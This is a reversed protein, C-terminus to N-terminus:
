DEHNTRRNRYSKIKELYKQRESKRSCCRVMLGVLITSIIAALTVGVFSGPHSKILRFLYKFGKTAVNSTDSKGTDIVDDAKHTVQHTQSRYHPDSGKKFDYSCNSFICCRYETQSNGGKASVKVSNQGRILNVASSGYCVGSDCLQLNVRAKSCGSLAVTCVATIGALSGWSGELSKLSVHYSCVEKNAVPTIHAKNKGIYGFIRYTKTNDPEDWCTKAAINNRESLKIRRYSDVSRKFRKVGSNHDGTFLCVPGIFGDHVDSNYDIDDCTFDLDYDFFPCHYPGNDGSDEHGKVLDGVMGNKCNTRCLDVASYFVDAEESEDKILTSDAETNTDIPGVCLKANELTVCTSSMVLHCETDDENTFCIPVGSLVNTVKYLQYSPTVNFVLIACRLELNGVVPQMSWLIEHMNDRQACSDPPVIKNKSHGCVGVHSDSGQGDYRADISFKVDPVYTISSYRLDYDCWSGLDVMDACFRPNSNAVTYMYSYTEDNESKVNRSWQTGVNSVVNFDFDLRGDETSQTAVGQDLINGSDSLFLDISIKRNRRRVVNQDVEQSKLTSSMATFLTLILFLTLPLMIWFNISRKRPEQNPRILKLPQRVSLLGPSGRKKQQGFRLCYLIRTLVSGELNLPNMNKILGGKLHLNEEKNLAGVNM